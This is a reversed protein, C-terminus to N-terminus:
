SLACLRGGSPFHKQIYHIKESQPSEKQIVEIFITLLPQPKSSKKKKFMPQIQAKSRELNQITALPVGWERETSNEDLNRGITSTILDLM